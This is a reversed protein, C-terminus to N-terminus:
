SLPLKSDEAHGNEQDSPRLLWLPYRKGHRQRMLRYREYVNPAPSLAFLPRGCRDLRRLIRM